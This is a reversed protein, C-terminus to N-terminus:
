RKNRRNVKLYREEMKIYNQIERLSYLEVKYNRVVEFLYDNFKKRVYLNIDLDPIIIVRGEVNSM